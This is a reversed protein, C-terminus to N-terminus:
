KSESMEAIAFDFFAFSLTHSDRCSLIQYVLSIICSMLFIRTNQSVLDRHFEVALIFYLM